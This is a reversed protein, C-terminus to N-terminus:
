YPIYNNAVLLNLLFRCNQEYAKKNAFAVGKLYDLTKDKHTAGTKLVEQIANCKSGLLKYVTHINRENEPRHWCLFHIYLKLINKQEVTTKHENFDEYNAGNALDEYLLNVYKSIQPLTRNQVYLFRVDNIEEVEVTNYYPCSHYKSM